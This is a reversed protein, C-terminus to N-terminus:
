RNPNGEEEFDIEQESILQCAHERKFSTIDM